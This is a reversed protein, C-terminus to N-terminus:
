KRAQGWAKVAEILLNTHAPAGQCLEFWSGGLRRFVIRILRYARLNLKADEGLLHDALMRIVQNAFALPPTKSEDEM